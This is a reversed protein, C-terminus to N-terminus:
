HSDTISTEVGDTLTTSLQVPFKGRFPGPLITPEATNLHESTKNAFKSRRIALVRM